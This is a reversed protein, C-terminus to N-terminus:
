SVLPTARKNLTEGNMLGYEPTGFVPNEIEVDSLLPKLISLRPPKVTVTVSHALKRLAENSLASLIVVTLSSDDPITSNM